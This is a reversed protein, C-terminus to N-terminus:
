TTADLHSPDREALSRKMEAVRAAFQEGSVEDRDVQAQLQDIRKLLRGKLVADNFAAVIDPNNHRFSGEEYVVKQYRDCDAQVCTFWHTHWGKRATPRWGPTHEWRQMSEGCSGCPTGFGAPQKDAKM